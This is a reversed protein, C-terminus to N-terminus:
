EGAAVMKKALVGFPTVLEYYLVGSVGELNFTEENRGAPYQAKKEALSRGSVDFVRLQAECGEPLVFAIATTGNFPNPRNQLLQFGATTPEGTETVEYFNLEVKSETLTSNYAFAPLEAEDLFLADSLKGGGQLVKFKLSFVPAAEELFVGDAQSWVSRIEGEAENYTGFNDATLPLSGLSEM